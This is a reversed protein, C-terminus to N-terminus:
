QRALWGPEPAERAQELVVSTGTPGTLLWVADATQLMMKFGHGLTGASSYGIRLTAEPLRGVEIGTGHDEVWFQVRGAGADVCAQAEGGGAHVLANMTAEGVATLLDNGRDKDFGAARAAEVAQLRAARLSQATLAIPAGVAPLREPLDDASDCLRLRGETVSALVDRLFAGQYAQTQALCEELRKREVGQALLYAVSALEDLTQPALARRSFLALVGVVRDEMLLPYGAFAVMGERRAWGKESIREDALVDNTLHPKRERAILGIKKQGVPVRGHPGDLHTYLGVSAQLVLVPQERADELTWVRAFAADLHEVLPEVCRRLMEGLSGGAALATSVEARLAAHRAQRAQAEAERQAGAYLRANDVAVAVQAVLAVLNREAREAFVDPDEHGFFLGGLVAGSRSIVPVALYSRVPPHEPPMGHHPPMTGYRPDKTVDGIRIVGEGRFTPGFLPTARPHPFRSFAERPAGSITYLLYEEGREDQNNYFFAGFQAGTLETAADTAAQVLRELNLEASLLRGVRNIADLTDREEELDALLRSACQEARRHDTVDRLISLHVRPRVGARARFELTRQSGDPRHLLFEGAQEGTELFRRWADGVHTGTGPPAFDLVSRNLMEARSLGFLECAAPNADVYRGTDDALLVADEVQEFLARYQQEGGRRGAEWSARLAEEALKRQTIDRRFVVLGGPHPYLSFEMWTNEHPCYDEFVLAQGTEMAEMHRAHFETGVVEPFAEWCVTGLLEARRRGLIDEARANVYVFRWDRDFAQFGDPLTELAARADFPTTSMKSQM